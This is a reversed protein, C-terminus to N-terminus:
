YVVVGGRSYVGEREIIKYRAKVVNFVQDGGRKIVRAKFLGWGRRSYVGGRGM